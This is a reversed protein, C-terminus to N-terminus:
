PYNLVGEGAHVGQYGFTRIAMWGGVDAKECKEAAPHPVVATSAWRDLRCFNHGLETM